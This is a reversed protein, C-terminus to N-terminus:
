GNSLPDKFYEYHYRILKTIKGAENRTILQTLLGDESYVYTQLSLLTGASNLTAIEDYEGSETYSYSFIRNISGDPAYVTKSVRSTGEFKNEVSIMTTGDAATQKSATNEKLDDGPAYTYVITYLLSDQDTHKVVTIERAEVNYAYDLKGTLGGTIDFSLIQHILGDPRYVFVTRDQLSDGAYILEELWVNKDGYKSLYRTVGLSDFIVQEVLNGRQDFYSSQWLMSDAPRSPTSEFIVWAHQLRVKHRAITTRAKEKQLLEDQTKPPETHAYLSSALFLACGLLTCWITVIRITRM